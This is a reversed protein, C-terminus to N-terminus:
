YLLFHAVLLHLILPVHKDYRLFTWHAGDIRRAFIIFVVVALHLFPRVKIVREAIVRGPM